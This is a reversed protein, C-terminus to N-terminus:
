FQSAPSLAERLPHRDIERAFDVDVFALDLELLLALDLVLQEPLGPQAAAGIPLAVVVALAVVADAVAAQRKGGLRGLPRLGGPIRGAHLADLDGEAAQVRILHVLERSHGFLVRVRDAVDRGALVHLKM